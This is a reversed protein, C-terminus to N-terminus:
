NKKVKQSNVLEGREVFLNDRYYNLFQAPLGLGNLSGFTGRLEYHLHPATSAGSNGAKGIEQSKIVTDGVSVIISGKKLHAMISSEGNLHDIIIYNGGPQDRNITGPQNDDVNNVMEIIKGNGPANLRKGFCHHNENESGDGTRIRGDIEIVIDSAYREGRSIFHHFNERHTRGGVEIHWEEEFPLELDTITEYNLYIDEDLKGEDGILTDACSTLTLIFVILLTYILLKIYKM